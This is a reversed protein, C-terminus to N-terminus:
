NRVCHRWEAMSLAVNHLCALLCVVKPHFQRGVCVSGEGSTSVADLKALVKDVKISLQNFATKKASQHDAGDVDMKLFALQEDVDDLQGALQQFQDLIAVTPGPSVPPAPFPSTSAADASDRRAADRKSASSPKSRAKGQKAAAARKASVSLKKAM